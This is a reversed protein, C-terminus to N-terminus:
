AREEVVKEAVVKEAVVKEAVVLCTAFFRRNSLHRVVREWVRRPGPLVSAFIPALRVENILLKDVVSFGSNVVLDVIESLTWFNVHTRDEFHRFTLQSRSLVDDVECNPVTLILNKKCVRHYEALAKRPESLHELVEFCSITDFSADAFPLQEASGQCLQENMKHWNPFRITDMGVVHRKGSMENVYAGNGCGVDLLSDGSHQLLAKLRHPNVPRSEWSQTLSEQM